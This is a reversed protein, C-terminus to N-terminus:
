GKINNKNNNNNNKNHFGKLQYGSSSDLNDFAINDSNTTTGIAHQSDNFRELIQNAKSQISIDNSSSNSNIKAETAEEGEKKSKLIKFQHEIDANNDIVKIFLYSYCCLNSYCCYYTLIKM